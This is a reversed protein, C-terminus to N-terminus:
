EISAGADEYKVFVGTLFPRRKRKHMKINTQDGAKTNELERAGRVGDLPQSPAPCHHTGRYVCSNQATATHPSSALPTQESAFM